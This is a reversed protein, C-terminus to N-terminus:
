LSDEVAKLSFETQTACMVIFLNFLNSPNLTGQSLHFINKSTNEKIVYEVSPLLIM